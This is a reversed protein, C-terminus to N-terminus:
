RLPANSVIAASRPLWSSTLGANLVPCPTAQPSWAPQMNQATARNKRGVVVEDRVPQRREVADDGLEFAAGPNGIDSAAV